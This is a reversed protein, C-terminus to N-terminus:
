LSIRTAAETAPCRVKDRVPSIDMRGDAVILGLYQSKARAACALGRRRGIRDRTDTVVSVLTGMSGTWREAWGAWTCLLKVVALKTRGRDPM